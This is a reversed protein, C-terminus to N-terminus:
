WDEDTTGDDLLDLLKLVSAARRAKEEPTLAAEPEPTTPAEEAIEPEPATPEDLLGEFVDGPLLSPKDKGMQEVDRRVIRARLVKGRAIVEGTKANVRKVECWKYHPTTVLIASWGSEGWPAWGKSGKQIQFDMRVRKRLATLAAEHIEAETPPPPPPPPPAFPDEPVEVGAAEAAKLAKKLRRSWHGLKKKGSPENRWQKWHNARERSKKIETLIAKDDAVAVTM